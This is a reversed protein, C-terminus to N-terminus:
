PAALARAVSLRSREGQSLEHPRVGARDILDFAALLEDIRANSARILELHERTTCHPWLGHNQPSWYLSKPSDLIGRNPKEFGVLVNLLSTKGAGSWGLVATVGPEISLSISELRAPGLCVQSLTWLPKDDRMAAHM